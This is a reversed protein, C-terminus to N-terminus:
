ETTKFRGNTNKINLMDESFGNTCSLASNLHKRTFPYPLSPIHQMKKAWEADMIWKNMVGENNTAFKYWENCIISKKYPPM